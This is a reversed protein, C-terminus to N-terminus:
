NRILLFKGHNQQNLDHNCILDYYYVGDILNVYQNYGNFLEICELLAGTCSYINLISGDSFNGIIHGQQSISILPEKRSLEHLGLNAEKIVVQDIYLWQELDSNGTSFAIVASDPISSNKWKIPMFTDVWGIRKHIGFNAYGILNNTDSISGKYFKIFASASDNLPSFYKFAFRFSDAKLNYEFIQVLSGNFVVNPLQNYKVPRLKASYLGSLVEKSKICSVSDGMNALINLTYWNEPSEIGMSNSWKEFGLNDQAKLLLSQLGLLVLLLLQKNM